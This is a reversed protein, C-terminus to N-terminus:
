RPILDHDSAREALRRESDEVELCARQNRRGPDVLMM